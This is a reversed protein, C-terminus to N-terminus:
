LKTANHRGAYHQIASKTANHGNEDSPEAGQRRRAKLHSEHKRPPGKALWSASWKTNSAGDSRM